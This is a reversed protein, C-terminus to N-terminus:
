NLNFNEATGFGVLTSFYAGVPASSVGVASAVAEPPLVMDSGVATVLALVVGVSPPTATVM